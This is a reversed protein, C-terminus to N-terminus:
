MQLEYIIQSYWKLLILYLKIATSNTQSSLDM